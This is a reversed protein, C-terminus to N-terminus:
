YKIIRIIDPIIAKLGQTIGDYLEKAKIATKAATAVIDPHVEASKIADTLHGVGMAATCGLVSYFLVSAIEEQKKPDKTFKSAVLNFIKMVVHHYKEGFEFIKDAMEEGGFGKNNFKKVISDLFSVFKGFLKVIYPGSLWLGVVTSILEEKIVQKKHSELVLKMDKELYTLGKVFEIEFLVTNAYQRLEIELKSHKM